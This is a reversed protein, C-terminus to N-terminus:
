HRVWEVSRFMSHRRLGLVDRAGSFVGSWRRRWHRYRLITPISTDPETLVTQDQVTGSGAVRARTSKLSEMCSGITMLGTGSGHSKFPGSISAGAQSRRPGPEPLASLRFGRNRVHTCCQEQCVIMLVGGSDKLCYERSQHRM